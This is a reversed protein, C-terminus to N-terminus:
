VVDADGYTVFWNGIDRLLLADATACRAGLYWRRPNLFDPVTVFGCRALHPAQAPPLMATLFAAGSEAARLEAFALAERTVEDDVLPCPFLDVLAALPLDLLELERLVLYGALRGDVSVAFPRYGFLPVGFYRWQLYARDRVQIVPALGAHREWLEDFREDFRELPEIRCRRPPRPRPAALRCARDAVAGLAASLPRSRLYRELVPRCRLPKVRLPLVHVDFWDLRGVFGGHSAENPFGFVTAVGHREAIGQYLERALTVFM